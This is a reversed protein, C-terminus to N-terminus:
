ELIEDDWAVFTLSDLKWNGESDKKLSFQKTRKQTPIDKGHRDRQTLTLDFELRCNDASKEVVRLSDLDAESEANIYDKREAHVFVVGEVEIYEAYGAITSGDSVSSLKTSFILECLEESYVKKVLTRLDEISSAGLEALADPSVKLYKKAAEHSSQAECDLGAGYFIENVSFSEELLEKAESILEDDTPKKACSCSLVALTCLLICFLVKIQAKKM